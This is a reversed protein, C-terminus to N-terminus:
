IKNKEEKKEDSKDSEKKKIISKEGRENKGGYVRFLSM